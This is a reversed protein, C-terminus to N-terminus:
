VGGRRWQNCNNLVVQFLFARRHSRLLHVAATYGTRPRHQGHQPSPLAPLAPLSPLSLFPPPVEQGPGPWPLSNTGLVQSPYRSERGERGEWQERGWLVSFQFVNLPPYWFELPTRFDPMDLKMHGRVPHRVSVPMKSFTYVSLHQLISGISPVSLMRIRSRSLVFKRICSLNSVWHTPVKKFGYTHRKTKKM